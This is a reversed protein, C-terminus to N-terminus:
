FQFTPRSRLTRARLLPWSSGRSWWVAIKGSKTVIRKSSRTDQSLKLKLVGYEEKLQQYVADIYQGLDTNSEQIEVAAVLTQALIAICARATDQDHRFSVNQKMDTIQFRLTNDTNPALHYLMDSDLNDALFGVMKLTTQSLMTTAPIQFSTRQVDADSPISHIESVALAPESVRLQTLRQIHQLKSRANFTMLKNQMAPKRQSPLSQGSEPLRMTHMGPRMFNVSSTRSGPAPNAAPTMSTGATILIRESQRM